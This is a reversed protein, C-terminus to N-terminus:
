DTEAQDLNASWWTTEDVSDPDRRELEAYFDTFFRSGIEETPEPREWFRTLFVGLFYVFLAPDANVYQDFQPDAALYVVKDTAPDVGIRYKDNASVLLPVYAKGEHEITAGLREDRVPALDRVKMTPLGVTTLFDRTSESLGPNLLAADVPKVRDGWIAQIEEATVRGRWDARTAAVGGDEGDFGTQSM